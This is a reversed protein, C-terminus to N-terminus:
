QVMAEIEQQVRIDRVLDILEKFAVAGEGAILRRIAELEYAEYEGSAELAGICQEKEDATMHAVSALMDFFLYSRHDDLCRCVASLLAQKCKLDALIDASLGPAASGGKTEVTSVPQGAMSVDEESIVGRFYGRKM